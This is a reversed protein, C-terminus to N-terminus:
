SNRRKAQVLRIEAMGGPGTRHALRVHQPWWQRLQAVAATNLEARDPRDPAQMGGPSYMTTRVSLWEVRAVVGDATYYRLTREYDDKQDLQSNLSQDVVHGFMSGWCFLLGTNVRTKMWGANAVPYVGWLRAGAAETAYFIDVLEAHLDVVPALRRDNTRRVVARVDCDLQVVRAGDGYYAAIAARNAAVGLAGPLVEACLGPDVAARYTDLEDPAVFVRVIDHDIGADALARLAMRNIRDARAHSPIAVHYTM